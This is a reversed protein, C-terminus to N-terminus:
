LESADFQMSLFSASLPQAVEIQKTIDRIIFFFRFMVIIKLQFHM